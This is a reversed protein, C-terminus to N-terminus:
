RCSSSEVATKPNKLVVCSTCFVSVKRNLWGRANKPESSGPDPIGPAVDNVAWRRLQWRWQCERIATWWGDTEYELVCIGWHAQETTAMLKHLTSNDCGAAADTLHKRLLQAPALHTQGVCLVGPFLHFIVYLLYRPPNCGHVLQPHFEPTM